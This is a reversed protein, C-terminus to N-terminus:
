KKSQNANKIFEAIKPGELSGIELIEGDSMLAVQDADTITSVRHAIVIVTTKKKLNKISQTIAFESVSDLASTSEDLVLLNPSGYLARALGIRQLQGGSMSNNQSGLETDIGQPLSQVFESLHANRVSEEFLKIDLARGFLINEAITGSIMGPRQPVYALKVQGVAISRNKQTDGYFYKISGSSLNNLGLILQALTSKGSGSKGIIAFFHGPQIVATIHKLVGSESGRYAFSVNSLQIGVPSDSRKEDPLSEGYPLVESQSIEEHLKLSGNGREIDSQINAIANQLPVIGSMVKVAGALFVGLTVSSASLSGSADLFVVFVLVGLMLSVEIFYRPMLYYTRIRGLNTGILERAQDFKSSFFKKRRFVAIEQFSEVTDNIVSATAAVGTAYKKSVATIRKSILFQIAAIVGLFYVFTVAAALPNVLFFTGAIALVLVAESILTSFNLMASIRLSNSSETFAWFLDSSSKAKFADLNQNLMLRYTEGSFKLDLSSLFRMTLSIIFGALAAKSMFFLFTLGALQPIGLEGIFVPFLGQSNLPIQLLKTTVLGLGMVGAIDFIALCSRFFVLVFYKQKETRSLSALLININLFFTKM